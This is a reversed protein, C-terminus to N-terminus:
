RGLPQRKLVIKMTNIFEFQKQRQADVKPQIDPKFEREWTRQIDDAHAFLSSSKFDKGAPNKYCTELDFDALLDYIKSQDRPLYREKELSLFPIQNLICFITGHFRDSICFSFLRFAEAWEFPTLLHGVNFDAAANYMSMSIIQYGRDKYHKHIESSLKKDGYFLLGLVPRSFDVGIQELKSKVNTDKFEFTFTPDPLKVVVGDHRTRYEQVLQYTFTDRAGIVDFGDLYEKIKRSLKQIMFKDSDYASVCYAIKPIKTKEPLWYINPFGPRNLSHNVSWVDMGIIMADYNNAMYEQLSKQIYFRPLSHDLALNKKIEDDWM